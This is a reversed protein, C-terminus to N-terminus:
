LGGHGRCPHQPTIPHEPSQTAALEPPAGPCPLWPQSLCEHLRHSPGRWGHRTMTSTSSGHHSGGQRSAPHRAEPQQNWRSNTTRILLLPEKRHQLGPPFTCTTVRTGPVPLARAADRDGPETPPSTPASSGPPSVLLAPAGESSSPQLVKKCLNGAASLTLGASQRTWIRAAQGSIHLRPLMAPSALVADGPAPPPAIPCSPARPRSGAPSCAAPSWFSATFRTPRSTRAPTPPATEISSCHQCPFLHPFDDPVSPAQSGPPRQGDSCAAGPAGGGWYPPNLAPHISPLPAGIGPM